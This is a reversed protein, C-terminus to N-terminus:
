PPAPATARPTGSSTRAACARDRRPPAAGRRRRRRLTGVEVLRIDTGGRRADEVVGAALAFPDTGVTEELGDGRAFALFEGLMREM